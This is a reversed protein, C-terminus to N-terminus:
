TMWHNKKLLERAETMHCSTGNDLYWADRLTTITYLFSLFSFYSESKSALERMTDKNDNCNDPVEGQRKKRRHVSLLFTTM